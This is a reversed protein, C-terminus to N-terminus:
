GDRFTADYVCGPIHVNFVSCSWSRFHSDDDSLGVSENRHRRNSVRISPNQVNFCMGVM